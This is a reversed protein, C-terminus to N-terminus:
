RFLATLVALDNVNGHPGSLAGLLTSAPQTRPDLEQLATLVLAEAARDAAADGIHASGTYLALLADAPVLTREEERQAANPPGAALPLSPLGPLPAAIGDALRLLPRPHGCVVYRLERDEPAFIAFFVGASCEAYLSRLVTDATRVGTRPAANLLAATRLTQRMIAMALAAEVGSGTINGSSIMLRGDPLWLADYWAAGVDRQIRGSCHAADLEIRPTSPLQAPLSYRVIQDVTRRHRLARAVNRARVFTASLLAAIEEALAGNVEDIQSGDSATEGFTLIGILGGNAELVPVVIRSAADLAALSEPAQGRPPRQTGPAPVAAHVIQTRRDRIARTLADNLRSGPGVAEFAADRLRAEVAPDIHTFALRILGFDRDYVDFICFAAFAGVCHRATSDIVQAVDQDSALEHVISRLISAHQTERALDDIDTATGFWDFTESNPRKVPRARARFRRYRGDRRRLRFEAEYAGVSATAIKWTLKVYERDDPHVSALWGDALLEANPRGTYEAVRENCYWAYGNGACAWAHEPLADAIARYWDGSAGFFDKSIQPTVARGAPEGIESFVAIGGAVRGHEDRLPLASMAVRLNVGDARAIDVTLGTVAAGTRMARQLPLDAGDLETGGVLVRFEAPAESGPATLSLNRGPPMGLMQELRRNGVIKAATADLAVAVGVPILDLMTTLMSPTLRTLELGVDAPVAVFCPIGEVSIIGHEGRITAQRAAELETATAARLPLRTGYEYLTGFTEHDM